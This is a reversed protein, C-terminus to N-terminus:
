GIWERDLPQEGYMEPNLVKPPRKGELFAAINDVVHQAMEERTERAATGIHPTFVCNPQNLKRDSPIGVEATPPEEDYVDLAVGRIDGAVLADELANYDVIAGRSANIFIADSDMLSFEDAGIMGETEATHPLLCVVIDSERFVEEFTSYEAGVLGEKKPDVRNRNHYRIKMACSHAKQALDFGIEGMGIIGLTKGYIRSGLFAESQNQKFKGDRVFRDAEPIRWATSIVLCFTLEATTAAYLNPIGTVVINRSTAADTDIHPAMTHMAAIMKLEDAADIVAAPVRVGGAVVLVDKGQVSEILEEQSLNRDTHDFVTVNGLDRLQDIASERIPLPVFVEPKGEPLQITNDSM